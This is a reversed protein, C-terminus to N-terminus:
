GVGNRGAIHTKLIFREGHRINSTYASSSVEQKVRKGSQGVAVTVVQNERVTQIGEIQGSSGEQTRAVTICGSETAQRQMRWCPMAM